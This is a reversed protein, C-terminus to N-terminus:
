KEGGYVCFMGGWAQCMVDRYSGMVHIQKGAADLNTCKGPCELSGSIATVSASSIVGAAGSFMSESKGGVQACTTKSCAQFNLAGASAIHWLMPATLLIWLLIMSFLRTM